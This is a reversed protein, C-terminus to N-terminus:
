VRAYRYHGRIYANFYGGRGEPASMLSAYTQEPVDFYRYVKGSVFEVELTGAEYGVSALSRSEVAIREM